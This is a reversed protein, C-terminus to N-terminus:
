HMEFVASRQNLRKCFFDGSKIIKNMAKWRGRKYAEIRDICVDESLWRINFSSRWKSSNQREGDISCYCKRQENTDDLCM